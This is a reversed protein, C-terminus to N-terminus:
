SLGVRPRGEELPRAPVGVVTSEDAVDHTVCAGAGVRAGAGVTLRQLTVSSAGLLAGRQIHCEGSVTAHPNVSVFDELHADHGLTAVANLHVHHGLKVNTGITVGALTILGHGHTFSSGTVTTPHILSPFHAGTLRPDAALRARTGPGGVAIAVAPGQPIADVGGLHRVGLDKLRALNAASLDDDIVGLIDWTPTRKNIARVTDVTERGFGGGGIIVIDRM